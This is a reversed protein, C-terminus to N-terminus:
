AAAAYVYVLARLQLVRAAAVLLAPVRRAAELAGAARAEAPVLQRLGADVHVLALQLVLTQGRLAAVVGEAAVGAHTEQGAAGAVGEVGGGLDALVVVLADQLGVVAAGAIM